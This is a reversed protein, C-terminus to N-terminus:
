HGGEVARIVHNIEQWTDIRGGWEKGVWVGDWWSDWGVGQATNSLGIYPTYYIILRRLDFPSTLQIGIGDIM